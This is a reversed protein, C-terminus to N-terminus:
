ISLRMRRTKVMEFLPQMGSRAMLEENSVHDTWSIGVDGTSCTWPTAFKRQRKGHKVFM